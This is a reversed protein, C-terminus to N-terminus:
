MHNFMRKTLTSMPPHPHKHIFMHKVVNIIHKTHHSYTFINSHNYNKNMRERRIDNTASFFSYSRSVFYFNRVYKGRMRKEVNVNKDKSRSHNQKEERERVNVCM